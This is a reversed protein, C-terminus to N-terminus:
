PCVLRRAAMPLLSTQLNQDTRDDETGKSDPKGRASPDGPTAERRQPFRHVLLLDAEPPMFDTLPKILAYKMLELDIVTM